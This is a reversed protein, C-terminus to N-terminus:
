EEAAKVGAEAAAKADAEGAAGEKATSALGLAEILSGVHQEEQRAKPLAPHSEPLAPPSEPAEPPSEETKQCMCAAFLDQFARSLALASAM